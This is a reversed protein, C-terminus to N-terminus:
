IGQDQARELKQIFALFREFYKEFLAVIRDLDAESPLELATKPAKNVMTDLRETLARNEDRLRAIEDRLEARDDSMAKCTWTEGQQSCVSVTGTQSDLRVFRGAGAEKLQYRGEQAAASGALLFGLAAAAALSVWSGQHLFDAM